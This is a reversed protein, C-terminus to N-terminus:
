TVGALQSMKSRPVDGAILIFSFAAQGPLRLRETEVSNSMFGHKPLGQLEFGPRKQCIPM